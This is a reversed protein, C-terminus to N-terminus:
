GGTANGCCYPGMGRSRREDCVCALEKGSCCHRCIGKFEAKEKEEDVGVDNVDIFEYFQDYCFDILMETYANVTLFEPPCSDSLDQCWSANMLPYALPDKEFPLNNGATMQEALYLLFNQVIFTSSNNSALLVTGFVL